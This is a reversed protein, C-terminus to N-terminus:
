TGVKESNQATDSSHRRAAVCEKCQAKTGSNAQRQQRVSFAKAQKAVGCAWCVASWEAGSKRKFNSTNSASNQRVPSSERCMNPTSSNTQFRRMSDGSHLSEEAKRAQAPLVHYGASCHDPDQVVDDTPTPVPASVRRRREDQVRRMANGLQMTRAAVEAPSGARCTHGTPRAGMGSMGHAIYENATQLRRQLQALRFSKVVIMEPGLACELAELLPILSRLERSGSVDVFIVSFARGIDLQLRLLAGMDFCDILEFRVAPFRAKARALWHTSKDAGVALGNTGCCCSLLYTTMGEHCGIELVTDGNRVASAIAGRYEDVNEAVILESRGAAGHKKAAGRSSFHRPLGRAKTDSGTSFGSCGGTMVVGAATLVGVALVAAASEPM